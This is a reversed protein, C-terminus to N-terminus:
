KGGDKRFDKAKPCNTFHSLMVVPMNLGSETKAWYIVMGCGRCTSPPKAFDIKVRAGGNLVIETEAM